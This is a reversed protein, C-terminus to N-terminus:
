IELTKLEEKIPKLLALTRKLGTVQLHIQEQWVDRLTQPDEKADWLNSAIMETRMKLYDEGQKAVGLQESAMTNISLMNLGM